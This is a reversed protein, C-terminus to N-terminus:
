EVLHADDRHVHPHNSTEEDGRRETDIIGNVKVLNAEYQAIAQNFGESSPYHQCAGPQCPHDKIEKEEVRAEAILYAGYAKLSASLFSEITCTRSSVFPVNWGSYRWDGPDRSFREKFAELIQEPSQPTM